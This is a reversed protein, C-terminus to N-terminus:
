VVVGLRNGFAALDLVNVVGNADFDFAASSTNFANGFATLDAVNVTGDANFDGFLRRLDTGNLPTSYQLYPIALQWRGDALSGSDVGVAGTFTLTISSASGTLPAISLGSGATLSVPSGGSTRTLTVTGAAALLAANVPTAFDLRLSTVRSRQSEGLNVTVLSVTTPPLPNIQLNATDSLNLPPLAAAVSQGAGNVLTAGPTLTVGTARLRPSTQGAQV